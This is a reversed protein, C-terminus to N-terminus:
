ANLPAGNLAAHAAEGISEALTPHPHIAHAIEDVTSELGLALVLESILETAKPGVIHVGLVENYKADAVIKVLGEPEGMIRAKGNATFPFSGLKVDYGKERAAKETLGVSAVEPFTYTCNPTHLHNIPHPEKGAITEAVLVGEHSAAHALMPTAIIDGIAFVGPESTRCHGDVPIMGREDARISTTELGVDWTVPARGVAVLLMEAEIVEADGGDRPEVHVKVGGKVLDVKTVKSATKSTIGRRKFAKELEASCDEDEIPLLRDMYEVLTVKAGFSNYVCAFETGVAGAGMVVLSAPVKQIELIDDSNVTRVHDMEIFPLDKCVSGTALIVNKSQLETVKGDADTVSVKGRGALRGHGSHVDIKNKRMLFDVGKSNTTVTRERYKQVADFDLSAGDVKIGFKKADRVKDYLHASELLAKTPICGRLLCTGGLRSDKEVIATKLGLQACRIAAVYGGPGAGIITVDYKEAVTERRTTM